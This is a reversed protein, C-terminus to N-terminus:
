SPVHAPATRESTRVRVPIGQRVSQTVICFDEFLGECRMVRQLEDADVDVTLDVDVDAIRFRGAANRELHAEVDASVTADARARRLCFTLSAALCGGLAAALMRAPNPGASEGLPPPEDLMLPAADPLDPFAATFRYGGAPRITVRLATTADSM